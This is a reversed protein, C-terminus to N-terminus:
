PAEGNTKTRLNPHLETDKIYQQIKEQLRTREERYRDRIEIREEVTGISRDRVAQNERGKLLTLQNKLHEINRARQLEPILPTVNVGIGRLAIQTATMNPEGYRNTGSGQAAEIAKGVIGYTTLFPPSVLSNAYNLLSKMQEFPPDIPNVIQRGSFPDINTKIAVAASLAPSSLAGVSGLAGSVDGKAVSKATNLFM